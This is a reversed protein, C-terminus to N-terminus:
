KKKAANEEYVVGIVEDFSLVTYATADLEVKMGMFSSFAITDGVDCPPEAREGGDLRKGIAVAEVKGFLTRQRETMKQPDVKPSVIQIGSQATHPVEVVQVVIHHVSPKIKKM